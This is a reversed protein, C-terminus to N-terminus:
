IETERGLRLGEKMDEIKRDREVINQAIEESM